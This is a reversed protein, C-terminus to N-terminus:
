DWDLGSSWISQMLCKIRVTFPGLFGIPDFIRDLTQLVFRKTDVNKAVFNILDRADFYLTDEVNNWELGLVKNPINNEEFPKTNNSIVGYTVTYVGYTNQSSELLVSELSLLILIWM